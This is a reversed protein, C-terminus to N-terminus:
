LSWLHSRALQLNRFKRLGKANKAEAAMKAIETESFRSVYFSDIAEPVLHSYSKGSAAAERKLAKVEKDDLLIQFRRM